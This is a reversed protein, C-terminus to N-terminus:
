KFGPDAAVLAMFYSRAEDTKGMAHALVGARYGALKAVESQNPDTANPSEGAASIARRYFEHAKPFQRLHQWCEGLEILVSPEDAQLKEAEELRQIAGSFNGALKQKRALEVRLQWDQPLRECRLHLIEIELRAHDAALRAVLSQAQPHPDHAARIRAIDLR